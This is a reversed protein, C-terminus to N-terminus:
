LFDLVRKEHPKRKKTTWEEKTSITLLPERRLRHCDGSGRHNQVAAGFAEAGVPFKCLVLNRM